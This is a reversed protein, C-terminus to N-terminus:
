RSAHHASTGPATSAASPRAIAALEEKLSMEDLTAFPLNIFIAIRRELESMSHGFAQVKEWDEGEALVPDASSWHATVPRGPWQPLSEGAATDSLTFVFDLPPAEARTFEEYHKPRGNHAPMELKALIEDVRPDVAEVPAVGASHAQFRGGGIKNLVAEAFISRASNRQSLFLVHYIRNDPM